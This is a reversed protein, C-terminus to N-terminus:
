AATLLNCGGLFSSPIDAHELIEDGVGEGTGDERHEKEDRPRQMRLRLLGTIEVVRGCCRCHSDRTVRASTARNCNWTRDTTKWYGADPGLREEALCSQGAHCNWAAHDADAVRRELAAYTQGAHRDWAAHGADPAM